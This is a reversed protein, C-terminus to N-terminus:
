LDMRLACYSDWQESRRWMEGYPRYRSTNGPHIQCIMRPTCAESQNPQQTSIKWLSSIGFANTRRSFHSDEGMRVDSFPHKAWTKRWYALSSGICYDPRLNAYTIAERRGSDWFLVENYGVANEGECLLKVQESIRNKDSYDDSDFHCIVDCHAALANAENRLRGINWRLDADVVQMERPELHLALKDEGGSDYIVLWKNAYNQSRFSRIARDTMAARGHVLM